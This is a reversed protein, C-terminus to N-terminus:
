EKNNEGENGKVDENQGEPKENKGNKDDKGNEASPEQDLPIEEKFDVYEKIKADKEVKEMHEQIKENIYIEKTEEKLSDFDDKIEDLKIIHYGYQSKVPESIEGKKLNFAAKEFEPVMDGKKFFGLSGGTEQTGTDISKEQAIKEFDGGDKLEKAIKKADEEKEVLIHSASIQKLDEKHEEYYKKLDEDKPTFKERLHNSYEEMLINNSMFEKFSEITLGQEKLAEQFGEEGGYAQQTQEIYENVKEEDVKVGEKEADQRVMELQVLNKLINQRIAEDMTKNPDDVAPEKLFDEGHQDIIQARTAKYNDIYKEMPIEVGNVEAAVGKPKGCATLLLSCLLVGALVRTWHKFNM